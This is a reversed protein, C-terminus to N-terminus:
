VSHGPSSLVSGLTEFAKQVNERSTAMNFRIFGDFRNGGFWEGFDVALRCDDILCRKLNEGRVYRSLDIWSLYTGELPSFIVNPITAEAIEQALIWNDHIIKLVSRLWEEGHLYATKAALYGVVNGEQIGLSAVFADYKKRLSEDRLIVYSNKLGALNFTKSASTLTVLRENATDVLSTPIQTKEGPIIDQHIEDSLLFLHHKRCIETLQALEERTWVRGVPNHPSSFIMGKVKEKQITQELRDFDITYHGNNNKLDCDVRRRQTSEIASFFPYYVPTLVLVSDGPDTLIRILWFLAPIVGPAFRIEEASVSLGHQRKEWDIFPQYYDSKPFYYGFVGFQAWETLKQTVARPACFDMDAVWFPTLDGRGFFHELSGWKM